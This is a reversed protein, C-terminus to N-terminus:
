DRFCSGHMGVNSSLKNIPTNIPIILKMIIIIEFLISIQLAKVTGIDKDAITNSEFFTYAKKRSQGDITNDSYTFWNLFDTAKNNPIHKAVLLVDESKLVDAKRQKGDPAEFKFDHTPSVPQIGEQKM